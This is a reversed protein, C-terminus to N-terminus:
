CWGCLFGHLEGYMEKTWVYLGGEAPFRQSLEIVAIGQPLFFFLLGVTWLWMTLPGGAAIVPLVNLNAVAVVCLWTLDAVGLARILHAPREERPIITDTAM